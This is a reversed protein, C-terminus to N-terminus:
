RNFVSAYSPATPEPWWEFTWDSIIVSIKNTTSSSPWVTFSGRLDDASEQNRASSLPLSFGLLLHYHLLLLFHWMVKEQVQLTAAATTDITYSLELRFLM